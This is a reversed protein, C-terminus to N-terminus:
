AGGAVDELWARTEALVEEGLADDQSMRALILAGVMASWSGIAARRRAAPDEGPATAAMREIQARLSATMKARAEGERRPMEGALAAVPCGGAMDERHRTTLYRRARAPISDAGGAADAIAREMAAAFLADKNPFYGYFGGHTLGAAQMAEAVTVADFGKERFLKGAAKVIAERNAAVQERSVRM